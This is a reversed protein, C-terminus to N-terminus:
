VSNECGFLFSAFQMGDTIEFHSQLETGPLLWVCVVMVHMRRCIITSTPLMGLWGISYNWTLHFCSFYLLFITDACMGCVGGFWVCKYNSTRLPGKQARARALLHCNNYSVNWNRLRCNSFLVCIGVYSKKKKKLKQTTPKVQSPNAHHLSTIFNADLVTQQNQWHIAYANPATRPSFDIKHM